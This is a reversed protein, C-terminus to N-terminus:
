DKYQEKLLHKFNKIFKEVKPKSVNVIYSDNPHADYYGQHYDEAEYFQDYKTFKTVIPDKYKGAEELKKKIEKAIALEEDNQYFIVSRYQKGVDPGQRNLQTPDHSGYFVKVLQRYSVVDSDYRVRVSEAYETSGSAVEKYSPNPKDGGAYGSVVEKVGKVREFVAETCWFCGSAFYATELKALQEETLDPETKEGQKNQPAEKAACSVIFLLGLFVSLFKTISKM